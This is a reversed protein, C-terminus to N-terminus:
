TATAELRGAREASWLRLGRVILAIGLLFMGVSLYQGPTLGFYRRDGGQTPDVRLYDLCFRIPSYLILILSPHFGEFPRVNKLSYLVLTLLVAVLMESFGLDFRVVGDPYLVGLWFDTTRGPHDKVVSCGMRGIIWAPVLGFIIADAYKMVPARHKKFYLYAGLAGGIFGGFSSLGAWFEVLVLPNELIRNPFYFIVSVLHAVVFGSLVIWVMGDACLNPDLGTLRARRRGLMYGVVLAIGVLVGFPQIPLLGLLKYTPIKPIYIAAIM